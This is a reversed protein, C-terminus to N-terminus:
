RVSEYITFNENTIDGQFNSKIALPVASFVIYPFFIQVDYLPNGTFCYLMFFLQFSISMFLYRRYWHIRNKNYMKLTKLFYLVIIGISFTGLFVGNEVILQLYVNHAANFYGTFCKNIYKFNEWGVGFFPYERILKFGLIYGEGRGNLFEESSGISSLLRVFSNSLSPVFKVLLILGLLLILIAFITKTIATGRDPNDLYFVVLLTIVAFLCHARKGSLLLAVFYVAFFLFLKLSKKQAIILNVGTILVGVTIYMANTSYHSTLGPIMGAKFCGILSYYASESIGSFLPLINNMYLGPIIACAITVLAHVGSFLLFVIEIARFCKCTSRICIFFLICISFKVVSFAPFGENMMDGNRNLLCLALIFIWGLVDKLNKKSLQYERKLYIALFLFFITTILAVNALLSTGFVLTPKSVNFSYLSFLFLACVILFDANIKLDM